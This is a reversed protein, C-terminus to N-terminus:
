CFLLRIKFNIRDLSHFVSHPIINKTNYVTIFYIRLRVILKRMLGSQEINTTDTVVTIQIKLIWNKLSDILSSKISEATQDWDAHNASRNAFIEDVVGFSLLKEADLLTLANEAFSRDKWLIAACGEPFNCTILM